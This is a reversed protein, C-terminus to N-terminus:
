KNNNKFYEVIFVLRALENHILARAVVPYGTTKTKSGSLSTYKFFTNYKRNLQYLRNTNSRTRVYGSSYSLVPRGNPLVFSRTGNTRQRDTTNEVIGQGRMYDIFLEVELEKTLNKVEKRITTLVNEM